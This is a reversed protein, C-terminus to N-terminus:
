KENSFLSFRFRSKREQSNPRNPRPDEVEPSAGQQSENNAINDPDQGDSTGEMDLEPVADESENDVVDKEIQMKEESSENSEVLEESLMKEAQTAESYSPLGNDIIDPKSTEATLLTEKNDSTNESGFSKLFPFKELVKRIGSKQEGAEAEYKEFEASQEKITMMAEKELLDNSDNGKEEADQSDPNVKMKESEIEKENDTFKELLVKEKEMELDICGPSESKDKDDKGGVEEECWGESVKNGAAGYNGSDLEVVEREEVDELFTVRRKNGVRFVRVLLVLLSVVVFAVLIVIFPPSWQMTHGCLVLHHQGSPPYQGHCVQPPYPPCNDNM